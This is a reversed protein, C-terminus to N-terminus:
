GAVASLEGTYGHRGVNAPLQWFPGHKSCNLRVKTKQDVYHLDSVGYRGAVRKILKIEASCKRCKEKDINRLMSCALIKFSGHQKCKIIVPSQKAEYKVQELDFKDGYIKKLKGLYRQQKDM